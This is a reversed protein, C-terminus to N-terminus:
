KLDGIAAIVEAPTWGNGRWLKAVNGNRDLLATTLGHSITGGENQRYVAFAHTLRDIETPDGTAFNWIKPDAANHAGYEKLVAPTDFQPDLTISLLRTEAVAGSGSQIAQQLQAFNNSMRPCFNPMPCRTFIFTLVFPRGRYNDLTIREGQENTLTFVPMADGEKLRSSAADAAPTVTPKPKPLQVEGVDIKKVNAITFDKPTVDLRFSIADGIRLGALEKADAVSFPMTMSPMFNPISEHEIEVTRHDPPLGRVIGRVQYHQATADPRQARGCASVALALCIALGARLLDTTRM